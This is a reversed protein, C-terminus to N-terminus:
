TLYKKKKPKPKKRKKLGWDFIPTPQHKELYSYVNAQKSGRILLILAEQVTKIYEPDGIIGIRNGKLELHCKTLLDLNKITKGGSGIIRARISEFDKRKTYDKINLIELVNDERKISLAATLPFGFEIADIVMEAIFEDEANGSIFVEKGRNTIKVGLIKELKEKNKIIKRFSECFLKKM